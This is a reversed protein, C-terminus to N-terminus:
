LTRPRRRNTGRINSFVIADDKIEFGGNHFFKNMRKLERLVSMSQGEVGSVLGGGSYNGGSSYSPSSQLSARMALLQNAGVKDVIPKEFVVEGKHVYGAVDYRNGAGTYGGEAASLDGMPLETALESGGLSLLSLIKSFIFKAIVQEIARIASQQMELWIADWTGRAERMDRNMYYFLGSVAGKVSQMAIAAAASEKKTRQIEATIAKQIKVEYEKKEVVDSTLEQEYRLGKIYEGLNGTLEYNLEVLKKRDSESKAFAEDAQADIKKQQDYREAFWEKDLQAREKATGTLDKETKTTSVVAMRRSELSRTINEYMAQLDKSSKKDSEYAIQQMASFQAATKGREDIIIDFDKEGAKRREIIQGLVEQQAKLIDVEAQSLKKQDQANGKLKNQYDEYRGIVDDLREKLEKNAKALEETNTKASRLFSILGVGVGIVATIATTLGGTAFGMTTSLMKLAFDATMFVTFGEMLAKNLNKQSSSANGESNSLAMMAFSMMMVLERGERFFFNRKRHEACEERYTQTMKSVSKGHADTAATASGIAAPSASFEADAEELSQTLKKINGDTQLIAADAISNDVGFQANLQGM